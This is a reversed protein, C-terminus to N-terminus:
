RQELTASKKGDSGPSVLPVSFYTFASGVPMDMTVLVRLEVPGGQQRTVSLQQRYADGPSVKQVALTAASAQIGEVQKISLALNTGAASPVAALHLTVPVGPQVEADFSYHLDVPVGLKSSSAQALMMKSLTPEVEPSKADADPVAPTAAAPEEGGAPPTSEPAAKPAPLEPAPQHAPPEPQRCAGLVLLLAAAAAIRTTTAEPNSRM